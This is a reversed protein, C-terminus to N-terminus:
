FMLCRCWPFDGWEVAFMAACHSALWLRRIAAHSPLPFFFFAFLAVDFLFSSPMVRTREHVVIKRM